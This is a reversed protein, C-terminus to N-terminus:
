SLSKDTEELKKIWDRLINPLCKTVKNFDFDEYLFGVLDTPLRPLIDDKLLLVNKGRSLFFGLELSVNPNYQKTEIKTEEENRTFIAIGYKCALLFCAVNNWLQTDINKDTAVWGKYGYKALTKKISKEINEYREDLHQRFPMMIFVNKDYPSESLICETALKDLHSFHRHIEGYQDNMKKLLIDTEKLKQYVIPFTGSFINSISDRLDIKKIEKLYRLSSILSRFVLQLFASDSYHLKAEKFISPLSDLDSNLEFLFDFGKEIFPELYEIREKPAFCLNGLIYATYLPSNDWTGNENQTELIEKIANEVKEDNIQYKWKLECYFGKFSNRDVDIWNQEIANFAKTSILNSEEGLLHIIKLAWLTSFISGGDLFGAYLDIFGSPKQNTQIAENFLKNKFEISFNNAEAITTVAFPDKISFSNGFWNSAKNIIENTISPSIQLCLEVLHHTSVRDPYVDNNEDLALIYGEPKLEPLIFTQFLGHVHSILRDVKIKEM